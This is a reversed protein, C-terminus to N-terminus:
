FVIKFKLEKNIKPHLKYLTPRIFDNFVYNWKSKSQVKEYYINESLDNLILKKEEKELLNYNSINTIKYQNIQKKEDLWIKEVPQLQPSYKPLYCLDINLRKAEEKVLTSRHSSFNDILLMITGYPNQERIQELCSVITEKTSDEMLTIYDNGEPTLSYFGASKCSYTTSDTEIEPKFLSWVKMYNSVFQFASEDFSFILFPEGSNLDLINGTEIDYKLYYKRFKQYLKLHFTSKYYNSRRYDHPFPKGFKADFKDRLLRTLHSLSYTVNFM